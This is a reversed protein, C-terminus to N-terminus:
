VGRGASSGYKETGQMVVQRDLLWEFTVITDAEM